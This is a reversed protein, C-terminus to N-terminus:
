SLECGDVTASGLQSASASAAPCALTSAPFPSPPGGPDSPLQPQLGKDSLEGSHLVDGLFGVVAEAQVSCPGSWLM